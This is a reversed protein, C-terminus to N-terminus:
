TLKIRYSLLILKRLNEASQFQEAESMSNEILYVRDLKPNQAFIGVPLNTLGNKSLAVEELAPLDSFLNQSPLSTLKNDDIQIVRLNHLRAFIGAPIDTLEDMSLDVWELSTLGQFM